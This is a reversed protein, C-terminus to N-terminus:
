ASLLLLHIYFTGARGRQFSWTQLAPQQLGSISRQSSEGQCGTEIKLGGNSKLLSTSINFHCHHIVKMRRSSPNNVPVKVVRSRMTITERKKKKKNAPHLLPLRHWAVKILLSDLKLRNSSLHSDVTKYIRLMLPFTPDGVPSQSCCTLSKSGCAHASM